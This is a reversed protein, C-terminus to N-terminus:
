LNITYKLNRSFSQVLYFCITGLVFSGLSCSSRETCLLDYILSDSNNCPPEAYSGILLVVTYKRINVQVLTNEVQSGFNGLAIYLFYIFFPLLVAFRYTATQELQWFCALARTQVETLHLMSHPQIKLM